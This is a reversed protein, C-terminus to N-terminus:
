AIAASGFEIDIRIGTNNAFSSTCEKDEGEFWVVLRLFVVQQGATFSGVKIKGGAAKAAGTAGAEIDGIQIKAPTGTLTSKNQYFKTGYETNLTSRSATTPYAYGATADGAGYATLYETKDRGAAQIDNASTWGGSYHTSAYPEVVFVANDKTLATDIYNTGPTDAGVGEGANTAGNAKYAFLAVRSAAAMYQTGTIDFQKLILAANDATQEATLKVALDVAFYSVNETATLLKVPKGTADVAGAANEKATTSNSVYINDYKDTQKLATINEVSINGGAAGIWEGATDTLSAVGTVLEKAATGKQGYIRDGTTVPTTGGVAADAPIVDAQVAAAFMTLGNGSAGYFGEKLGPANQDFSVINGVTQVDGTWKHADNLSVAGSYYNGAGGTYNYTGIQLGAATVTNIQLNEIKASSSASFWAFTATTLSAILVVVMVISSVILGKKKM